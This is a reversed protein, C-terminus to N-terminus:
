GDRGDVQVPEPQATTNRVLRLGTALEGGSDYPVRDVVIVPLRQLWMSRVEAATPGAGLTRRARDALAAAAEMAEDDGVPEEELATTGLIWRLVKNWETAETVNM